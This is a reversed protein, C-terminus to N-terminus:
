PAQQPQALVIGVSALRVSEARLSPWAQLLEGYSRVVRQALAVAELGAGREALDAPVMPEQASVRLRVEELWAEADAAWYDPEGRHQQLLLELAAIMHSAEAAWLQRLLGAFDAPRLRGADVLGGGVALLGWAPDATWWAPALSRVLLVLLDALRPLVRHEEPFSRLEGPLHLVAESLHAILARPACSKLVQGLVGDANRLVPLFPPLIRRNDLGLHNSMLFASQSITACPAARLIERSRLAARYSPESGLVAERAAGASWLVSLPSGKGSDGCVGAMTVAVRADAAELLPLFEPAAETCDAQGGFHRLCSALSRGLLAQHAALLDVQRPEVAREREQRDAFFRSETPDVASSLRLGSAPAPPAASQFLSDDDAHVVLKGCTDLLSANLNAGYQYGFDLPDFLAFEITEARVGSARAQLASAFARKEEAGAYSLAFGEQRGLEGLMGRTAQRARADATDDYVRLEARRGFLRLNAIASGLSRGLLEPRDRTSWTVAAIPPLAQEPSSEQIRRLLEGRSHLLGEKVMGVLLDDLGGSGDDQFGAEMLARRHEQLTRFRDMVRLALGTEEPAERVCGRAPDAVWLRGGGAFHM